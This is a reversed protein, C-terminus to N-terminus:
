RAGIAELDRHLSQLAASLSAYDQQATSLNGSRGAVELALASKVVPDAGFNSAAGKLSHAARELKKADGSRLAEEIEGVSNPYDEIFLQAVEVLLEEDGGVRDLATAKNLVLLDNTM